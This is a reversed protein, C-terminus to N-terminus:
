ASISISGGSLVRCYWRTEGPFKENSMRRYQGDTFSASIKYCPSAASMVELEVLGISFVSGIELNFGEILLNEGTSGPTIPHGEDRLKCLVENELVCIAKLPGGHHKKNQQEDGILGNLDVEVSNISLKPVGGTSTYIGLLKGMKLVVRNTDLQSISCIM